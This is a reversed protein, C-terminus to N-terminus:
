SFGEMIKGEPVTETHIIGQKHFLARLMPKIRSRELRFTKLEPSPKTRYNM